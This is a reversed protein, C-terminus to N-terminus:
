VCLTVQPPSHIQWSILSYPHVSRFLHSNLPLHHFKKRKLFPPVKNESFSHVPPFIKYFNAM